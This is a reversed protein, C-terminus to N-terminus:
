VGMRLQMQQGGGGGVCVCWVCVCLTGQSHGNYLTSFPRGSILQSSDHTQQELGWGVGAGEFPVLSADLKVSTM